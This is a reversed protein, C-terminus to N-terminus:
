KKINSIKCLRQNVLKAEYHEIYAIEEDTLEYIRYVLQNIYGEFAEAKNVSKSDGNMNEQVCDQMIKVIGSAQVNINNNVRIPLLELTEIDTQAMSRGFEMSVIHYYFSMLRSNLLLLLYDLNIIGKSEHRLVFSHINNLHYFGEADICATLTYGTQRVLIKRAQIIDQQWGGKYLLAPDINLWHGEYKLGYRCIQKGSVLGRRWTDGHPRDAIIDSQRTVSRVGTHGSAFAGLHTSISEIQDVIKKAKLDFFVRFRCHPLSAFYSQQYQCLPKAERLVNVNSIQYINVQSDERLVPNSEKTLICITLYGTAAGKFVSATIHTIANIATHDMIFHRIKSYYRGLLFSDPVIFGLRGGEVLMEIGRQMFLVYYSLKYEASAHYTRRLYDQYQMELSGTGRLGFSLYPPNGVVYDYSGAWFAKTRASAGIDEPRRLSDYVIINSQIKDAAEPRKLLLSAVAIEAAGPDIDAGWLNHQLIHRHIGADSWDSMPYKEELMSRAQCFKDRLIDYAKVLFYGCGCAPDLIKVQPNITIDYREVTQAMIFDIVEPSTYYVGHKRRGVAMKEYIQGLLTAEHPLAYVWHGVLNYIQEPVELVQEGATVAKLYITEQLSIRSMAINLMLEPNEHGCLLLVIIKQIIGISDSHGQKELWGQLVKYESSFKRWNMHSM